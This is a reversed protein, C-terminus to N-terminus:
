PKRRAPSAPAYRAVAIGHLREQMQILPTLSAREMLRQVFDDKAQAIRTTRLEEEIELQAVYLPEIDISSVSELHIWYLDGNFAIPGATQGAALGRAATNLEAPGFISAKAIDGKYKIDLYRVGNSAGFSNLESESLEIFSTGRAIDSKIEEVSPSTEGVRVVRIRAIHQDKVQEYRRQYADLVQQRSVHVTPVVKTQLLSRMLEREQKDKLVQDITKGQQERLRADALAESGQNNRVLEGRIQEAFYRLGHKKVDPTMSAYVENLLLDDVITESLHVQVLRWAERNWENPAKIYKEDRGMALLRDGLGDGFFESAMIARGNIQGIFQDVIVEEGTITVMPSMTSPAGPMSSLDLFGAAAANQTTVKVPTMPTQTPAAQDPSKFAAPELTASGKPADGGSCGVVALTSVCAGALLGAKLISSGRSAGGRGGRSDDIRM